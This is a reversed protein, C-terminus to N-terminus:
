GTTSDLAPEGTALRDTLAAAPLPRSFLYGQLEDCGHQHLLRAQQANEVGEAIVKLGLSHALAITGLAIALDNPDSEIDRTFAKDIKLRDLPFLKLYALSSYGTGFDDIALAVGMAKLARLQEIAEQPREMIASETIELELQTAPLGSAALAATIREVFNNRRLQRASINVAMRLPHGAANWACAQACAQRLVWDGVEVIMGTEECIPIFRDPPTLGHKPDNWRLLAEVGTPRLGDAAVQLQYHLEFENNALASRLRTELQLRDTAAVNMEAAFFQYNNRGSTKAHYMATDATRMIATVDDGDDPFLSIGLSASTNLQTGECTIPRAVEDILASATAMVDDAGTIDTMAVVFEDGGFRAVIDSKRMRTNLRHAVHVLLQDGIHHGLSDNITKFRDLDLFIVAVKREKRRAEAFAQELRAMLSFRNSLGTLPDHHALHAIREEARKRESIDTFMGIHKSVQESVPDRVLSISLWKPYIEGDKRRDWVEGAWHGQRALTEWMAAYFANDHRGSKFVRPNKGIVEDFTFGTIDTFAQNVSIIQNDRDTILIATPSNEFVTNALRLHEEARRRESIDAFMTVFGGDTLPSAQVEIARNGPLWPDIVTTGPQSSATILQQALAARAKADGGTRAACQRLIDPLRVPTTAIDEPRVDLLEVFQLNWDILNHERDTLTVGGPIHDLTTLLTSRQHRVREEQARLETIDVVSGAARRPQGKAPFIVRGRELINRMSGDQCPLRYEVEWEGGGFQAGSTIAEAVRERDQPHIRAMYADFTAPAQQRDDAFMATGYTSWWMTGRALDREWTGLRGVEQAENLRAALSAETAQSQRRIANLYSIAAGTAFMALLTFATIQGVVREIHGSLAELAQGREVALILLWPSKPVPEIHALVPTGNLQLGDVFGRVGDAAARSVADQVTQDAPHDALQGSTGIHPRSLYRAQPGDFATVWAIWSDPNSELHQRLARPPPPPATRDPYSRALHSAHIRATEALMSRADDLMARREATISLFAVGAAAAVVCTIALLLKHIPRM